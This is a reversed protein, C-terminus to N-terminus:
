ECISLFQETISNRLTTRQNEDPSKSLEIRKGLDIEEVPEPPDCEQAPMDMPSNMGKEGFVFRLQLDSLPVLNKMSTREEALATGKM